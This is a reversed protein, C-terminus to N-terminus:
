VYVGMISASCLGITDTGAGFERLFVLNTNTIPSAVSTGLTVMGGNAGGNSFCNVGSFSGGSGDSSAAIGISQGVGIALFKLLLGRQKFHAGFQGFLLPSVDFAIGQTFGAPVGEGGAPDGLQIVDGGTWGLVSTADFVQLTNASANYKVWAPLHPSKSVNWIRVMAVGRMADSFFLPADNSSLTILDGNVSAINAQRIDGSRLQSNSYISVVGDGGQTFMISSTPNGTEAHVQGRPFSVQGSVSNVKLAQTWAQGDDSVKISFADEGALGMEARASWNDQFILSATAGINAKNLKLQMNGSGPLVDDHSFLVTDSKVALREQAHTSTNLGLFQAELEQGIAKALAAWAVGDFVVCALEQKVYACFGALPMYFRWGGDRWIAIENAHNEWAGVPNSGIIWGQADEPAAIPEDMGRAEVSLQVLSDLDSIADNHTVHKQAQGGLIYPLGLRASIEAM